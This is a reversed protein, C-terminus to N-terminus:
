FLGRRRYLAPRLFPQAPIFKDTDHGWAVLHHGLEVYAAYNASAKIRAYSAMGEGNVAHGISGALRGTRVPALRKADASVEGGIQDLMRHIPGNLHRKWGPDISIHVAM